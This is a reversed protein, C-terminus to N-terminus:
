AADLHLALSMLRIRVSTIPRDMVRAIESVSKGEAELDLLRQDEAESFRRQTRGDAASISAPGFYPVRRSNPSKAGQRLCQYHIAGASVGYAKALRAYSWGRERRDAIELVQDSSLKAM